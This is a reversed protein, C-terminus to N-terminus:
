EKRVFNETTERCRPCKGRGTQIDFPRVIFINNCRPCLFVASSYEHEDSSRTGSGSNQNRLAM